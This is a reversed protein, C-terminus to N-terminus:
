HEGVLLRYAQLAEHQDFYVQGAVVFYIRGDPLRHSSMGIDKRQM